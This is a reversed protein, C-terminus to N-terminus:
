REPRLPKVEGRAIKEKAREIKQLLEPFSLRAVRASLPDKATAVLDEGRIIYATQSHTVAVNYHGPEDEEESHSLFLLVREEPKRWDTPRAYAMELTQVTIVDTAPAPGKLVEDIRVVTNLLRTPFEGGESVPVTTGGNGWPDPYSGKDSTENEIIKGPMVEIVTGTVVLDSTAVMQDFSRFAPGSEEVGGQELVTSASSEGSSAGDEPTESSPSSGAAGTQAADGAGGGAGFWGALEERATQSLVPVALVLLLTAAAAARRPSPLPPIGLIGRRANREPVEEEIRQRVARVLDPTPPYEIRSGLERLERELDLDPTHERDPM